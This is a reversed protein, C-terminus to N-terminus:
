RDSGDMLNCAVFSGPGKSDRQTGWWYIWVAGSGSQWQFLQIWYMNAAVLQWVLPQLRALSAHAYYDLCALREAKLNASDQFSTRGRLISCTSKHPNTIWIIWPDCITSPYEHSMWTLIHCVISQIPRHLGGALFHNALPCGEAGHLLWRLHYQLNGRM